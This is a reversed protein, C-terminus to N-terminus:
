VCGDRGRSGERGVMKGEGIFLKEGKLIRDIYVAALNKEPYIHAGVIARMHAHAAEAGVGRDPFHAQHRAEIASACVSQTAPCISPTDPSTTVTLPGNPPQAESQHHFSTRM